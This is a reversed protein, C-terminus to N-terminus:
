GGGCNYISGQHQKLYELVTLYDEEKDLSIVRNSEYGFYVIGIKYDHVDIEWNFEVINDLDIYVNKNSLKLEVKM